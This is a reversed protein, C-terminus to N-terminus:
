GWIILNGLFLCCFRLPLFMQKESRHISLSFSHSFSSPTINYDLLDSLEELDPCGAPSFPSFLSFPSISPFRFSHTNSPELKYAKARKARVGRM